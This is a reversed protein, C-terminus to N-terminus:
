SFKESLAVQLSNIRIPVFPHSSLLTFGRLPFDLYLPQRAYFQHTPAPYPIIVNVKYPSLPRESSFLPTTVNAHIRFLAHIPKSISSFPM